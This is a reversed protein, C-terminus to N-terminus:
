FKQWIIFINYKIFLVGIISYFIRNSEFVLALIIYVTDEIAFIQVIDSIFFLPWALQNNWQLFKDYKFELISFLISQNSIFHSLKRSFFKFGSYKYLLKVNQLKILMKLLARLTLLQQYIHFIIRTAIINLM